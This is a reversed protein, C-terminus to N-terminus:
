LQPTIDEGTRIDIVIWRWSNEKARLRDQENSYWDVNCQVRSWYKKVPANMDFDPDNFVATLGYKRKM